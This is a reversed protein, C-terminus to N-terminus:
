NACTVLCSRLAEINEALLYCSILQSCSVTAPLNATQWHIDTYKYTSVWFCFFYSVLWGLSLHLTSFLRLLAAICVYLASEILYPFSVREVLSHLESMHGIPCVVFAVNVLYMYILKDTHTHTDTNIHFYHLTM